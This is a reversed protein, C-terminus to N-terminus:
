GVLASFATLRKTPRRWTIERMELSGAPGMHESGITTLLFPVTPGGPPDTELARQIHLDGLYRGSACKAWSLSWHGGPDGRATWEIITEGVLDGLDNALQEAIHRTLANIM